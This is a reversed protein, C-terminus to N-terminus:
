GRWRRCALVDHPRPSPWRRVIVLAITTLVVAAIVNRLFAVTVPETEYVLFRMAVFASGGLATSLCASLAALIALNGATPNFFRSM